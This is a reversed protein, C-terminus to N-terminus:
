QAEEQVKAVWEKWVAKEGYFNRMSGVNPIRNLQRERGEIHDLYVLGCNIMLKYDEGPFMTVMREWLDAPRAFVAVDNYEYWKGANDKYATRRPWHKCIEELFPLLDDPPILKEKKRSSRARSPSSAKTTEPQVTLPNHNITLNSSRELDTRVGNPPQASGFKKKRAEASAKGAEAQSRAFGEAEQRWRSGVEFASRVGNSCGEPIVAKNLGASLGALMEAKEHESFAIGFLSNFEDLNIRISWIRKSM